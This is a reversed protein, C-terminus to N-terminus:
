YVACVLMHSHPQASLKRPWIEFWAWANLQQKWFSPHSALLLKLPWFRKLTLCCAGLNSAYLKRVSYCWLGADNNARRSACLFRFCKVYQRRRRSILWKLLGSSLPICRGSVARFAAPVHFGPVSLCEQKFILLQSTEGNQRRWTGVTSPTLHFSQHLYSPVSYLVFFLSLTNLNFLAIYESHHAGNLKSASIFKSSLSLKTKDKQKTDM